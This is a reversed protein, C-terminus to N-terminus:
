PLRPFKYGELKPVKIELDSIDFENAVINTIKAMQNAGRILKFGEEKSYSHYSGDYEYFRYIGNNKTEVSFRKNHLDSM